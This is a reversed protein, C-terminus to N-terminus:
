SEETDEVMRAVEQRIVELDTDELWREWAAKGEEGCHKSKMVQLIKGARRQGVSPFWERLIYFNFKGAAKLESHSDSKMNTLSDVIEKGKDFYDGIKVIYDEFEITQRKFSAFLNELEDGKFKLRKQAELEEENGELLNFFADSVPRRKRREKIKYKQDYDKAFFVRSGTLTLFVDKSSLRTQGDLSEAPLGLFSCVQQLCSTLLLDESRTGLGQVGEVKLRLSLGRESWKLRLPTLLHGLLAGFDNNSKEALLFKFNEIKCFKVDIQYKEKSLFSYTSDNQLVRGEVGVVERVLDVVERCRAEEELGVIFDVDGYPRDRGRERCLEAKDLVEVPVGAQLGRSRLVQLVEQVLRQYEAETLRSTDPFADGGM